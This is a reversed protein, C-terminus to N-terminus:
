RKANFLQHKRTCPMQLPRWLLLDQVRVNTHPKTKRKCGWWNVWEKCGGGQDLLHLPACHHTVWSDQEHKSFPTACRVRYGVYPQLRKGCVSWWGCFPLSVQDLQATGQAGLRTEQYRTVVWIISFCCGSSYAANGLSSFNAALSSAAIQYMIRASSLM